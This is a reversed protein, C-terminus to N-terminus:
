TIHKGRKKMVRKGFLFNGADTSIAVLDTSFWIILRKMFFCFFKKIKSFPKLMNRSHTIRKKVGCFAAITIPIASEFGTHSHVVDYNKEKFLKKWQKIYRFIGLEKISHLNYIKGGMNLIEETYYHEDLSTVAFDFSFNGRDIARYLDMVRSEAGGKDLTSFTHLIKIL